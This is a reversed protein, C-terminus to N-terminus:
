TLSISPYVGLSAKAKRFIDSAYQGASLSKAIELANRAQYVDLPVKKLDLSLALPNALREYQGRQLLEYKADIIFIRGKTGKRIENEMIILDSPKRVAFYPEATVILGFVQLETTVNLKARGIKTLLLEGLNSARGDPSVSWMVYTLYEAGLRSAPQLKQFEVEIATYGKKSGVKAEGRARPMLSTGVFDIKTAGSRYQYNIAKATKSVVSTRFVPMEELQEVKSTDGQAAPSGAQPYAPATLLLLLPFTVRLM